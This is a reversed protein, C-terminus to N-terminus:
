KFYTNPKDLNLIILSFFSIQNRPLFIQLTENEFVSQNLILLNNELIILVNGITQKELSKWNNELIIQLAFKKGITKM